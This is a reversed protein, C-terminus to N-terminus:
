NLYLQLLLSAALLSHLPGLFSWKHPTSYPNPPSPQHTQIQAISLNNTKPTNPHIYWIHILVYIM